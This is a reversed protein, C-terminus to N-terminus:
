KQQKRKLTFCGGSSFRYYNPTKDDKIKIGLGNYVLEQESAPVGTEEEISKKIESFSNDPNAQFQFTNRDYRLKIEYSNNADGATADNTFVDSLQSISDDM